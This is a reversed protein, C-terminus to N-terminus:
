PRQRRGRGPDSAARTPSRSSPLRRRHPTGLFRSILNQGNQLASFASSRATQWAHPRRKGGNGGRRPAVRLAGGVPIRSGFRGAPLVNGGRLGPWVIAGAIEVCGYGASGSGASGSVAGVGRGDCIASVGAVVTSEAGVHSPSAGIAVGGTAGVGIGRMAGSAPGVVPVGAYAGDPALPGTMPEGLMSGFADRSVDGDNGGGGTNVGATRGIGATGGSATAGTSSLARRSSAFARLGPGAACRRSAEGSSRMGASRRLRVSEM